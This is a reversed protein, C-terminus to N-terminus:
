ADCEAYRFDNAALRRIRGEAIFREVLIREADFPHGNWGKHDFGALIVRDDPGAAEEMVYALAMLGSSPVIYSGSMIRQLEVDIRDHHHRPIIEFSKGTMAAFRAFEATYDDCFDELGPDLKPKLEAFKHYDRVCWIASASAVAPLERWSASRIMGLAPRGTNCVAVVDTRMGGEGVSRCDNFRIVLDCSDIVGAHASAFSGNGVIAIRRSM